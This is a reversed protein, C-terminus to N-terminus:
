LYASTEYHTENKGGSLGLVRAVKKMAYDMRSTTVEVEGGIEELMRRSFTVHM